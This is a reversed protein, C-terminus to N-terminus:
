KKKETKNKEKNQSVWCMKTSRIERQLGRLKKEVKTSKTDARLKDSKKEDIKLRIKFERKISKLRTQTM